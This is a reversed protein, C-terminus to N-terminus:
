MMAKFLIYYIVGVFGGVLITIAPEKMANVTNTKPEIQSQVSSELGNMVQDLQNPKESIGAIYQVTHPVLPQNLGIALTNITEVQKDSLGLSQLALLEESLSLLRVIIIEGPLMPIISVRFDVSFDPTIIMRFHGVQADKHESIDLAAIIKLRISLLQVFKKPPANTNQLVGNIQYRIGFEHKYPELYIDSAGLKVAELLTKNLFRHVDMGQFHVETQQATNTVPKSLSLEIDDHGTSLYSLDLQM